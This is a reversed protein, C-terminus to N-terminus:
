GLAEEFERALADASALLTSPETVEHAPLSSLTRIYVGARPNRFWDADFRDRLGDRLARAGLLGVLRAPEDHRAAPWAGRLREDLGSQFLRVGVEEFLERPALAEPDGLLIRAAHLRADLLATRALLRAQALATRRGVGLAHVYLELHAPLAGFVFALRHAGVFAPERALAFPMSSPVAALHLAYGFTCFARAFSAAGIASPLGPLQIPLGDAITGLTQAM